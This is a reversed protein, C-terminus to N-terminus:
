VVTRRVVRLWNIGDKYLIGQSGAGSVGWFQAWAFGIHHESSSFYRSSGYDFAEMGRTKFLPNEVQSPFRKTYADGIPFSNNNMGHKDSFDGYAGNVRYNFKQMISRNEKVYNDDTTPKLNRWCLELEDRAPIYWDDYGNINLGRAWWAAPYTKEDGAHKMANTSLWGDNLTQCGIPFPTKTSKLQIHTHSGQKKPAVIISYRAMISWDNFTGSGNIATVNITLTTEYANIVTGVMEFDPDSRSRISLLQGAYVIPTITMDPVIFSKIGTSIYTPTSSQVLQIWIMGTFYGGEFYDGINPISKPKEIYNSM